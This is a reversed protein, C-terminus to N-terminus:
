SKFKDDNIRLFVFILCLTNKDMIMIGNWNKQLSFVFIKIRKVSEMEESIMRRILRGMIKEKLLYYSFRNKSILGHTAHFQIDCLM